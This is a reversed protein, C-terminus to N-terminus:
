QKVFKYKIMEDPDGDWIFLDWPPKNESFGQGSIYFDVGGKGERDVLNYTIKIVTSIGGTVGNSVSDILKWTGQTTLKEDDNEAISVISKNLGDLTCTGNQNITINAGDDAKWVGIFDAENFKAEKCGVTSLIIGIMFCKMKMM